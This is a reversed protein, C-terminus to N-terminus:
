CADRKLAAAGTASVSIVRKQQGNCNSPEVSFSSAGAMGSGEFTVGASPGVVALGQTTGWIKLVGEDAMILWGGAWDTGNECSSGDANSRCVMVEDRRKIAESRALQLAGHLESSVSSARGDRLMGSFSPVAIGLVIALVALTVILEILTFGKQLMANVGYSDNIVRAFWCKGEVLGVGEHCVVGLGPSVFDGALIM